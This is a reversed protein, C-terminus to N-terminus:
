DLLIIKSQIVGEQQMLTKSVRVKEVPVSASALQFVAFFDFDAELVWPHHLTRMSSCSALALADLM